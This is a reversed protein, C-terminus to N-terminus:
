YYNLYQAFNVYMNHTCYYYRFDIKYDVLRYDEQVNEFSTSKQIYWKRGKFFYLTSSKKVGPLVIWSDDSEDAM